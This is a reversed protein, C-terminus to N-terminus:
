RACRPKRGPVETSTSRRAGAVLAHTLLEVVDELGDDEYLDRGCDQLAGAPQRRGFQARQVRYVEGARQRQRERIEIENRVIAAKPVCRSGRAQTDM